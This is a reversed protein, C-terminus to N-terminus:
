GMVEKGIIALANRISMQESPYVSDEAGIHVHHPFTSIQRHHEANDWRRKLGAESTQWQIRYTLVNTEGAEIVVFEFAELVDDNVLRARIRIFGEGPRAERERVFYEAVIPSSIFLLEIDDLYLEILTEMRGM